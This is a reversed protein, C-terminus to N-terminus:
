TPYNGGLQVSGNSLAKSTVMWGNQVEVTGSSPPVPIPQIGASANTTFETITGDWIMEVIIEKMLSDNAQTSTIDLQFTHYGAADTTVGGGGTPGWWSSWANTGFTTSRRRVRPIRMIINGFAKTYVQAGGPGPVASSYSTSFHQLRLVLRQGPYAGVPFNFTFGNSYNHQWASDSFPRQGYWPGGNPTLVNSGYNPAYTIQIIPPSMALDTQTPMGATTAPSSQALTNWGFQVTNCTVNSPAAQIEQLDTRPSNNKNTNINDNSRNYIFPNAIATKNRNASFFRQSPRWQNNNTAEQSYVQYGITRDSIQIPYAGNTWPGLAPGGSAIPPSYTNEDDLRIVAQAAEFQASGPISNFAQWKEFDVPATTAAGLTTKRFVDYRGVTNGVLGASLYNWQWTPQGFNPVGSGFNTASPNWSQRGVFKTTPYQPYAAAFDLTLKVQKNGVPSNDERYLSIKNNSGLYINGTVMSTYSSIAKNEITINNGVLGIPPNAKQFIEIDGYAGLTMNGLSSTSIGASIAVDTNATMIIESDASILVEDGSTIGISSTGAPTVFSIPGTATAAIGGSGSELLIPQTGSGNNAALTNLLITSSAYVSYSGSAVYRINGAQLQYSGIQSTQQTLPTIRNKNGTELLTTGVAGSTIRRYLNGDTNGGTGIDIVFDSHQGAFSPTTPAVGTQFLVDYGTYFYQSRTPSILEFGRLQTQSLGSAPNKPVNIVLKDDQGLSINTLVAPNAQEYNDVLGVTQGGHFVIGRSESNRQHILLSTQTSANGVIIAEPVIYATTLPIGALQQTQSTVGGVMIAPVGENTIDAGDGLGIPGNYLINSENFIPAGTALGFGGGSGAPGIPGQLNVGTLSWTLGTYEWVDGDTPINTGSDQLYFDFEAPNPTPPTNNPNDSGDYWTSGKPGRGGAPGTPGKPGVPGSPGGGNLLLQDFNFNTKDVLQSITDSAIIEQITIPM